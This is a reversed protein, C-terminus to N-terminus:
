KNLYTQFISTNEKMQSISKSMKVNIKGRGGDKVLKHKSYLHICYKMAPIGDPWTIRQDGGQLPQIRFYKHTKLAFSLFSKLLASFNVEETSIAKFGIELTGIFSRVIPVDGRTATEHFVSDDKKPPPPPCPTKGNYFKNTTMMTFSDAIV